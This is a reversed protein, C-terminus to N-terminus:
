NEPPSQIDSLRTSPCDCVPTSLDDTAYTAEPKVKPLRAANVAARINQRCANQASEYSSVAEQEDLKAALELTTIEKIKIALTAQTSKLTDYTGKLAWILFGAAIFLVMTAIQFARTM